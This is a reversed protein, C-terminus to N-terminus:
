LSVLAPALISGLAAHVPVHRSERNEGGASPPRGSFQHAALQEEHVATVGRERHRLGVAEHSEPAVGGHGAEGDTAGRGQLCVGEAVVSTSVSLPKRGAPVNLMDVLVLAMGSTNMSSPVRRVSATVCRRVIYLAGLPARTNPAPVM